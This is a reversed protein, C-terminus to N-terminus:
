VPKSAASVTEGARRACYLDTMYNARDVPWQRRESTRAARGILGAAVALLHFSAPDTKHHQRDAISHGFNEIAHGDGVHNSRAFTAFDAQRRRAALGARRSITKEDM